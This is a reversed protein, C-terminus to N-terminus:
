SDYAVAGVVIRFFGGAPVKNEASIQKNSYLMQVSTIEPPLIKEFIATYTASGIVTISRHDYEVGDSWRVFEYGENAMAFLSVTDGHNYTGGGEVIGSGSPTVATSITYTLKEFVATYTANGTVTVTRTANTLSTNDQWYKFKYGTNPTATLTASKGYEYTGGGSVTGGTGATATLTYTQKEFIAQYSKSTEYATILSSNVTFTRSASTNGDSWKVFKWGTAPTATITYNTNYHYTGAGTVTGEGTKSVSVKARPKNFNITLKYKTSYTYSLVLWAHVFQVAIHNANAGGHSNTVYGADSNKSNFMSTVTLAESWKEGLSGGIQIDQSDTTIKDYGGSSNRRYVGMKAPNSNTNLNGSVSLTASEIESYAVLGNNRIDDCAAKLNHYLTFKEEATKDSVATPLTYSKSYDAM